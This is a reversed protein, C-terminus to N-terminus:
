CVTCERCSVDIVLLIHGVDNCISLVSSDSHNWFKVGWTHHDIPTCLIGTGKRGGGGRERGWQAGQRKQLAHISISQVNQSQWALCSFLLSFVKPIQKVALMCPLVLCCSLMCKRRRHCLTSGCQVNNIVRCKTHSAHSNVMKALARQVASAQSSL